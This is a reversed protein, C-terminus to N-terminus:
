ECTMRGRFVQQRMDRRVEWVATWGSGDWAVDGNSSPNANDSLLVPVSALAGDADLVSAFAQDECNDDVCEETGNARNGLWFVGYSTGDWSATTGAEDSITWTLRSAEGLPAGASTLLRAFVEYDDVTRRSWVVAFGDDGAAIRASRTAVGQDVIVTDGIPAGDLSVPQALVTDLGSGRWVAVAITEGVAIAVDAANSSILEDGSIVQPEGAPTGDPALSLSVLRLDSEADTQAWAVLWGDPTGAIAPQSRPLGDATLRIPDLAFAAGAADLAAFALDVACSEPDDADCAPDWRSDLWVAGFGSDRASMATLSAVSSSLDFPEVASIEPALPDYPTTQIRWQAPLDEDQPDYTWAMLAAGSTTGWAIKPDRGDGDGSTATNFVDASCLAPLDPPTEDEGTDTESDTDVDTDTDMDTGSDPGGDGPSFSSGDDGCAGILVGFALLLLGCFREAHSM